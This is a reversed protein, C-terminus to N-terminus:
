LPNMIYQVAFDEAKMGEFRKEIPIRFPRYIFEDTSRRRAMNKIAEIHEFTGYGKNSELNYQPYESAYARMM